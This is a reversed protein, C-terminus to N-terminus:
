AHAEGAKNAKRVEVLLWKLAIAVSMQRIRERGGVPIFRNKAASETTSCLGFCVTGVPKEASGGGPGAVGTVSLSFTSGFANRVGIAMEAATEESVAGHTNLTSPEVKLLAIKAENCYSIVGGPFVESSGDVSTLAAGIGGGTCSEAVSVTAKLKRLEEVVLTPLSKESVAYCAGGLLLTAKYEAEDAIRKADASTNARVLLRAHNEPFSTRYQIYVDPFDDALSELKEGLASEAIGICRLTRTEQAPQKALDEDLSLILPLIYEKILHRYEFPIGPLSVVKTNEIETLFAPASGVDNVLITSSSPVEAQRRNNAAMELGRKAFLAEIHKLAAEDLHLNEGKSKAIALATLDDTTPGLGGSTIVLDARRCCELLAVGIKEVNDEVLTSRELALGFHSLENALTKSNTDALRGDLLEDGIALTEIKLTSM